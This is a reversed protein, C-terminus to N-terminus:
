QLNPFILLSESHRNKDTHSMQNEVRKLEIWSKESIKPQPLFLQSM